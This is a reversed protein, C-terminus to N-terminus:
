RDEYPVPIIATPNILNTMLSGYVEEDTIQSSLGYLYIPFDVSSDSTNRTYSFNYMLAGGSKPQGTVNSLRTGQTVSIYNHDVDPVYYLCPNANKLQTVNFELTENLSLAVAWTKTEYLTEGNNDYYKLNLTFNAAPTQLEPYVSEDTVSASAPSIYITMSTSDVNKTYSFTYVTSGAGMPHGNFVFVQTSASDVSIWNMDSGQYQTPYLGSDKLDGVTFTVTDGVFDISRGNVTCPVTFDVTGYDENTAAMVYSIHLTVSGSPTEQEWIAYVTVDSSTITVSTIASTAGATAGWGQFTYGTRTPTATSLTHAGAYVGTDNAPMGTVTDDTNKNYTVTYTPNATFSATVTVSGTSSTALTLTSGSITATAGSQSTVSYGTFTYHELSPTTLTITNGDTAFNRTGNAPMNSAGTPSSVFTVNVSKSQVNANIIVNDSTATYTGTTNCTAPTGSAVNWGALYNMAGCDVTPINYTDGSNTTAIPTSGNYFTVRYAGQDLTFSLDTTIPNVYTVMPSGSNNLKWGRFHSGAGEAIPTAPLATNESNYAVTMRLATLEDAGNYFRLTLQATGFVPAITVNQTLSMPSGTYSAGNVTWGTATSNVGTVTPNLTATLNDIITNLNTGVPANWTLGGAFGSPQGSIDAHHGNWEDSITILKTVNTWHAILSHDGQVATMPFIVLVDNEYWGDFTKSGDALVPTGASALDDGDNVTYSTVFSTDTLQSTTVGNLDLSITHTVATAPTPTPTTTNGSHSSDGSTSETDYTGNVLCGHYIVTDNGVNLELGGLDYDDLRHYIQGTSSATAFGRVNPNDPTLGTYPVLYFYGDSESYTANPDYTGGINHGNWSHDRILANLDDADMGEENANSVHMSGAVTTNFGYAYYKGGKQVLIVINEPCAYENLLRRELAETMYLSVANRADSMASKSNAKKIVSSFIPILIAALVGIVAIVIILEVLTFGKQSRKQVKKMTKYRREKKICPIYTKGM